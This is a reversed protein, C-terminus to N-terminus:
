NWTTSDATLKILLWIDPACHFRSCEVGAPKLVDKRGWCASQSVFKISKSCLYEDGTVHEWSSAERLRYSGGSIQHLWNAVCRVWPESGILCTAGSPLAYNAWCKRTSTLFLACIVHLTQSPLWCVLIRVEVPKLAAPAVPTTYVIRFIKM